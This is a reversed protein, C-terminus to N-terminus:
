RPGTGGIGLESWSLVETGFREAAASAAPLSGFALVGSAMPTSRGPDRVFRADELRRWRSDEDHVWVVTTSGAESASLYAALCGPDDFRAENGDHRAAAAHRPESIVM